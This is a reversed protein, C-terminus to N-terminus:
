KQQKRLSAAAGRHTAVGADSWDAYSDGSDAGDWQERFTQKCDCSSLRILCCNRQSWSVLIGNRVCMYGLCMAKEQMANGNFGSSLWAWYGSGLGPFCLSSMYEHGFSPCMGAHTCGANNSSFLTSKNLTWWMLCQYFTVKVGPRQLMQMKLFINLCSNQINWKFICSNWALIVDFQPICQTALGSNWHLSAQPSPCCTFGNKTADVKLMDGSHEWDGLWSVLFGNTGTRGSDKWRGQRIQKQWSISCRDPRM